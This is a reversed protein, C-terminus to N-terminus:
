RGPVTMSGCRYLTRKKRSGDDNGLRGPNMVGLRQLSHINSWRKRGEMLTQFIERPHYFRNLRAAASWARVQQLVELHLTSNM